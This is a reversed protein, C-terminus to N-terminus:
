RKTTVLYVRRVTGSVRTSLPTQDARVYADDTRQTSAGDGWTTWHGRISVFLTAAVALIFVPILVSRKWM